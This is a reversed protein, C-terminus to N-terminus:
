EWGILFSLCSFQFCYLSWQLVSLLSFVSSTPGHYFAYNGDETFPFLLLAIRMSPRLTESSQEDM